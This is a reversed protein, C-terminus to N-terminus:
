YENNYIRDTTTTLRGNWSVTSTIVLRDGYSDNVHQILITRQMNAIGNDCQQYRGGLFCVYETASNQCSHSTLSRYDIHACSSASPTLEGVIQNWSKKSLKKYDVLNRVLEVGEQALNAAIMENKTETQDTLNSNFFALVGILGIGLFTIAVLIEVLSFGEKGRKKAVQFKFM